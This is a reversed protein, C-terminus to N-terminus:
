LSHFSYSKAFMTIWESRQARANCFLLFSSYWIISVADCLNKEVDDVVLTSLIQLQFLFYHCLWYKATGGYKLHQLLFAKDIASFSIVTVLSSFCAWGFIYELLFFKVIWCFTTNVRSDSFILVTLIAM